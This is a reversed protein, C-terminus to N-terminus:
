RTARGAESAGEMTASATVDPVARSGPVYPRMTRADIDFECVNQLRHSAIWADVGDLYGDEQPNDLRWGPPAWASYGNLTPIGHDLAVFLSDVAYLSWMHGSRSMYVDSAGRIFFSRCSPDVDIPQKVWQTFDRTDRTFEFAETNRDTVLLAVVLGGCALRPWSRRPLRSMLLAALTAVALEYYPIVRSPDRIASLGPMWGFLLRWASWQDYRFPLAYVVASVALVWLGYRHVARGLSFWPLWLVATLTLVLFFPRVTPYVELNRFLDGAGNWQSPEVARLQNTLHDLPFTPFKLYAPLYIGLFLGLGLLTGVVVGAVLMRRDAVWAYATSARTEQLLTRATVVFPPVASRARGILRWRRGVFWATALAGLVFPRSPRTASLEWGGLPVDRVPHLAIGAASLLGAGGILLWLWHPRGPPRPARFARVAALVPTALAATTRGMASVVPPAGAALFAGILFTFAGAYFDQTLLSAGLFAGLVAVAFRRWGDSLGAAVLLVLAVPPVLFVSARQAWAAVAGNVVNSSTFCFAAVALAEITDLGARRFLAYLCVCGVAMVLLITLTNAVFPDAVLRFSAYFPAYLILSHSYGLTGAAPHFMPPSAPNTLTTLSRYWWELLGNIFYPDLWGGLGRSELTGASLQFVYSLYGGVVAAVVTARVLRTM